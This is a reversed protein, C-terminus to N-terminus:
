GQVNADCPGWNRKQAEIFDDNKRRVMGLCRHICLVDTFVIEVTFLIGSINKRMLIFKQEIYKKSILHKKLIASKNLYTLSNM